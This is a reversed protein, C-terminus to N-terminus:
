EFIYVEWNGKKAEGAHKRIKKLYTGMDKNIKYMRLFLQPQAKYLKEDNLVMKYSKEDYISQSKDVVLFIRKADINKLLNKFESSMHKEPDGFKYFDNIVSLKKGEFPLYKDILNTRIPYVVIDNKAPQFNMLLDAPTKLGGYRELKMPAYPNITYVFLTLATYTWFAWKADIQDIKYAFYFLICPLALITHRSLPKFNTFQSLLLELLVFSLGISLIVLSFDRKKPAKLVIYALIVYIVLMILNFPLKYHQPNNYIGTLLPSFYNQLIIFAFGSDLTFVHLTHSLREFNKFLYIGFPLFFLLLALNVCLFKILVNRKKIYLYFGFILASAATFLAGITFTYCIILNSFGYIVLGSKIKDNKIRALAYIALTCLFTLLSYFRVEQSYYILFGNVSLLSAFILGTRENKAEKGTFYGATVTLVGFLVSLMRLAFDSNGFIKMWFSLIIQYLPFHVDHNLVARAIESVSGASAQTYFVMEDYWLGGPKDLFLVRLIFAILIIWVIKM